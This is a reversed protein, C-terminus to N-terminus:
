RRAYAHAPGHRNPSPPTRPLAGTFSNHTEICCGSCVDSATPEPWGERGWVGVRGLPWLHLLTWSVWSSISGSDGRMVGEGAGGGGLALLAGLVLKSPLVWSGLYEAKFDKDQSHPQKEWLWSIGTHCDSSVSATPCSQDWPVQACVPGWTQLLQPSGSGDKVTSEAKIPNRWYTAQSM